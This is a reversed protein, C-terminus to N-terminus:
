SSTKPMVKLINKMKIKMKIKIKKMKEKMYIQNNCRSMIKNFEDETINKKYIRKM